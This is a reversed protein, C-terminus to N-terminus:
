CTSSARSGTRGSRRCRGTPSRPAPGSRRRRDGRGHRRGRAARPREGRRRVRGHRGPRDGLRECVFRLAAGKSVGPSHWRSSSRCRSPSSCAITSAAACGTGRSRGPRGARRRGRDEHDPPAAVHRLQRRRGDGAPRARRLHAGGADAERRLAPRRRLREHPLGRPARGRDGRARDARRDAPAAAVRRHGPRRDARGPLLDGARHHRAPARLARRARVHARHRHDARHRRRALRGVARVTAPSLELSSPLITRDLDMAVARVAAPDLGPPLAASM